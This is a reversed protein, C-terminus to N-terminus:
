LDYGELMRTLIGKVSGANDLSSKLEDAEACSCIRREEAKTSMSCSGGRGKRSPTTAQSFSGAKGDAASLLGVTELNSIVDRFEGYSLAHLVDERTCLAAYAEYVDRVSPAVPVKRDRKTPTAPAPKTRKKSPTATPSPLLGSRPESLVDTFVDGERQSCRNRKDLAVLSCLIAKQQLNLNQLRSKTGTNFATSTVRVVHSISARPATEATFHCLSSTRGGKSPKTPTTPTSRPSSLNGNETLPKKSPTSDPTNEEAENQKNRMESEILDITKKTIDFAKRLDGTQAAVKKSILQIAPPMLIPSMSGQTSADPSTLSRLKATIVSAIEAATYPLFPLLQPKLRRARLGPLLRDTLDLANAVGVLTLSSSSLSWQFLNYLVDVDIDLLADIEDLVVLYSATANKNALASRLVDKANTSFVDDSIGLDSLLTIYVDSATKISMCNLYAYKAGEPLSLNQAVEGILASKGTGPPGSVYLAGGKGSALHSSVFDQLEGRQDDRGIVQRTEDEPTSNSSFLKKAKHYISPSTQNSDDNRRPTRPTHPTRPTIPAGGLQVRHRPTTPTQKSLADRRRPTQPCKPNEGRHKYTSSSKHQKKPSNAKTPSLAVRELSSEGGAALEDIQSAKERPTDSFDQHIDFGCDQVCGKSSTKVRKKTSLAPEYVDTLTLVPITCPLHRLEGAAFNTASRTRKGLMSM